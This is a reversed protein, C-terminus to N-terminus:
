QLRFKSTSFLGLDRFDGDLYKMQAVVPVKSEESYQALLFEAPHAGIPASTVEEELKYAPDDIM